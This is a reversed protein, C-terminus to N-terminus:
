DVHARTCGLPLPWGDLLKSGDGARKLEGPIRARRHTAFRPNGHFAVIGFRIELRAIGAHTGAQILHNMLDM